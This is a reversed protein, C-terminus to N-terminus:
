LSGQLPLDAGAPTWVTASGGSALRVGTELLSAPGMELQGWQLFLDANVLTVNGASRM